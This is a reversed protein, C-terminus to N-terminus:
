HIRNFIVDWVTKQKHKRLEETTNSLDLYIDGLKTCLGINMDELSTNVHKLSHNSEISESFKCTFEDIQSRLVQLESSLQQNKTKLIHITTDKEKVIHELNNLKHQLIHLDEKHDITVKSIAHSVAHSVAHTVATTVTQKTKNQLFDVKNNSRVFTSLYKINFQVFPNVM